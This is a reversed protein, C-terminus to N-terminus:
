KRQERRGGEIRERLGGMEMRETEREEEGERGRGRRV